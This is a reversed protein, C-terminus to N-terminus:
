EPKPPNSGTLFVRFFEAAKVIEEHGHTASTQLAAQLSASRIQVAQLDLAAKDPVAVSVEKAAQGVQYPMWEAYGQGDAPKADDQLLLASTRVHYGGNHDIIALNVLRDNHVAIITADCPQDGFVAMAPNGTGSKKDTESPRYWVKRGVTPKIM